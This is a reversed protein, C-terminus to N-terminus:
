LVTILIILIISIIGCGILAGWGEDDYDLIMFIGGIAGLGFFIAGVLGAWHWFGWGTDADELEMTVPAVRVSYVEGTIVSQAGAFTEGFEVSFYNSGNAAIEYDYTLQREAIVRNNIDMFLLKYRFSAVACEENRNYADIGVSVYSYNSDTNYEVNNLYASLSVGDIGKDNGCATFSLLTMVAFLALTFCAFIRKKM